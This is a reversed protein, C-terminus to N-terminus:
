DSRRLLKGVEPYPLLISVKASLHFEDLFIMSVACTKADITLPILMTRGATTATGRPRDAKRTITRDESAGLVCATPM